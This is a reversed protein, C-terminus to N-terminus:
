DDKGELAALMAQWCGRADSEGVGDPGDLNADILFVVGSAISGESPERPVIVLGQAELATEHAKIAARGVESWLAWEASDLEGLAPDDDFARKYIARAVKEQMDTM